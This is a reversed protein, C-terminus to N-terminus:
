LNFRGKLANYAQEITPANEPRYLAIFKIPVSGTGNGVTMQSHQTGSFDRGCNAYTTFGGYRTVAGPGNIEGRYLTWQPRNDYNDLQTGYIQDGGGGTTTFYPLGNTIFRSLRWTTSGNYTGLVSIDAGKNLLMFYVFSNTVADPVSLIHSSDATLIQNGGAGSAGAHKHLFTSVGSWYYAYAQIIVKDGTVTIPNGYQNMTETVNPTVQLVNVFTNTGDQLALQDGVKVGYQPPVIFYLFFGNYPGYNLYEAELTPLYGISIVDTTQPAASWTAHRNNGSIDYWYNTSSPYVVIPDYVMYSNIVVRDGTVTGGGWTNNMTVNREVDIVLAAHEEQPYNKIIDGPFIPTGATVPIFWYDGYRRDNSNFSPFLAYYGSFSSRGLANSLPNSADYIIEANNTIIAPLDYGSSFSGDGFGFVRDNATGLSALIPM